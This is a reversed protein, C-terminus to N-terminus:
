TLGEVILRIGIMVLLIRLIWELTNGKLLQNTKAGIVGGIWAGPIFYFVYDWAIHGLYIHSSVTIISIFFIMFMSTATAIHAPIGFLLIMAPVMISGGGIGFLGSLIGVILSLVFAAWFSVSYHYVHGDVWFTRVHKRLNDPSKPKRKVLFLLSLVVMLLGFYFSFNDAGIYQNLWSGVIGGPISGVLFLLGTKYDIRGKKFYSISSALATVVMVMLSIGVITQPTAWAFGETYHYLFLLCPILIVGGGLGILSGVFATLLGIFVCIIYVM